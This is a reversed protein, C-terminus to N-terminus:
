SSIALYTKNKDETILREVEKKQNELVNLIQTAELLGLYGTADYAVIGQAIYATCYKQFVEKGKATLSAFNTVVDYRALACASSEAEDSLNGLFTGSAVITTNANVGAKAVAAGSTCLTWSM